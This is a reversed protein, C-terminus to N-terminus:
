KPPEYDKLPDTINKLPDNPTYGGTGANKSITDDAVLNGKLHDDTIHVRGLGNFTVPQSMATGLM